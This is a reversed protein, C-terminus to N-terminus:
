ATSNQQKRLLQLSQKWIVYTIVILTIPLGLLPAATDIFSPPWGNAFVLTALGFSAVVAALLSLTVTRWAVGWFFLVYGVAFTSTLKSMEILTNQM